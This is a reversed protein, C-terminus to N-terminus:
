LKSHPDAGGQRPRVSFSTRPTHLRVGNSLKIVIEHLSLGLLKGTDKHRRGSDTPGVEVETGVLLEKQPDASDIGATTTLLQGGLVREAAENSKLVVPRAAKKKATLVAADFRQLWAYVKPYAKASIIDEPLAGPLTNLWHAVWIAQIDALTPRDGGLIWSRSDALLTHELFAFASRIYALAEPRRRDIAQQNWPVGSFDERDKLFKPDKLLPLDRPMVTTAQAFLSAEAHWKELLEELAANVPDSSGLKDNPYLNELTKLILRTDCYVDKGIAM